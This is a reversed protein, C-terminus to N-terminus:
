TRVWPDLGVLAMFESHLALKYHAIVDGLRTKSCFQATVRMRQNFVTISTFTATKGDFHFEQLLPSLHFVDIIFNKESVKSLTWYCHHDTMQVRQFM